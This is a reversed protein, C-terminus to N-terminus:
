NKSNEKFVERARCLFLVVDFYMNALAERFEPSDAFMQEYRHYIPLIDGIEEM